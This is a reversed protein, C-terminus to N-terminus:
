AVTPPVRPTADDVTFFAAADELALHFSHAFDPWLLTLRQTRPDVYWSECGGTTWVTSRAM